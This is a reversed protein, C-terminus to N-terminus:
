GAPWEDANLRGKGNGDLQRITASSTEFNMLRRFATAIRTSRTSSIQTTRGNVVAESCSDSLTAIQRM